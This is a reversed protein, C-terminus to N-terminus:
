HMVPIPYWQEVSVSLQRVVVEPSDEEVFSGGLHVDFGLDTAKQAFVATRQFYIIKTYVYQYYRIFPKISVELVLGILNHFFELVISCFALDMKAPLLYQLNWRSLVQALNKVVTVGDSLYQSVLSLSETNANIM